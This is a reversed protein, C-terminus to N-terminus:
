KLGFRKNFRDIRSGGDPVLSKPMKPGFQKGLDTLDIYPMNECNEIFEPYMLLLYDTGNLATVVFYDTKQSKLEPKQEQGEKSEPKKRAIGCGPYKFVYKNSNYGSNMIQPPQAKKIQEKVVKIIDSIPFDYLFASSTGVGNIEQQKIGRVFMLESYQSMQAYEYSATELNLRPAQGINILAWYYSPELSEGPNKENFEQIIAKNDVNTYFAVLEEYKGQFSLLMLNTRIYSLRSLQLMVNETQAFDILKKAKQLQEEAEDLRNLVILVHAYYTLARRDEEFELLYQSLRRSTLIPNTTIDRIALKFKEEDFFKKQM